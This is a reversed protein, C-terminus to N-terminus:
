RPITLAAYTAEASCQIGVSEPPLCVIERIVRIMSADSGEDAAAAQSACRLSDYSRRHCERLIHSYCM